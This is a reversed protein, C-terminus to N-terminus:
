RMCALTSISIMFHRIGIMIISNQGTNCPVNGDDNTFSFRRTAISVYIEIYFLLCDRKTKAFCPHVIASFNIQNQNIASKPNSNRACFLSQYKPRESECVYNSGTTFSRHVLNVDRVRYIFLSHAFCGCFDYTSSNRASIFVFLLFFLFRIISLRYCNLKQSQTCSDVNFWKKGFLKVYVPAYTHASVNQRAFENAVMNENRQAFFIFQM